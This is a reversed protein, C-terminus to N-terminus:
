FLGVQFNQCASQLMGRLVEGFIISRICCAPLSTDAQIGKVIGSNGVRKEPQRRISLLLMPSDIVIDFADIKSSSEM